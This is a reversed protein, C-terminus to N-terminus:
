AGTVFSPVQRLMGDIADPNKGGAQAMDPRGGGGGGCLQAAKRIVSGCSVGKAVAQKTAMAVLQVRDDKGSALLVLGVELKDRLKEAMDRLGENDLMDFRGTVVRVGDVEAAQDLMAQVSGGAISRKLTELEKLAAKYQTNVAIVKSIVDPASAKLYDAVSILRREEEQYFLRANNGTVAVIRRIGAAVGGEHIIKLIGISATSRVHTGGCFEKSYEGMSVVRVVDGYKEDFLATAGSQKAEDLSMVQTVVPYDEYIAQNVEEEIRDLEERTVAQMHNFDFRLRDSTVYSGSQHIHDGLVKRLAKQLLHTASHNRETALRTGKEVTLTCTEGVELVGSEVIGQHKWCGDATKQTDVIRVAAGVTTLIGVDGVQGGSEAYFPTQDTIIVVSDGDGVQHVFSATTDPSESTRILYLIVAQSQLTEYGLFRTAPCGAPLTLDGGGWSGKRDKIAERAKEKQVAMAKRFAEEDLSLGNESLIEKTLDLPFGYTDHLKFAVEGPLFSSDHKEKKEQILNSLLLLGQGITAAFREEEIRIIKRIYDQKEVLNPYAGGSEEIVIKALDSLFLSKIGLLMGHRAARRLLRRLVYGRAENSPVVGDGIMMVTSRIHDTIVRISVDKQWSEGYRVGAIRCVADLIRRVTDVEFLNDVGQMVCALRELGMGTDINPHELKAYSGDEQKDFQTFVLNWVEIYRDCDCGVGCDPKGCGYEEGRDFHIESCPGCPGTGHEWFNDKKGMRIIRDAPVGVDENWIQFAEDDDQYITIYLREAPIKMVETFFEWAWPIVEKKFYDGFSFNGLMEFFTGHRATKGVNEIDPTRICKQCTTVRKRPPIAAGTFYPKLPAMGSNILLLSPDNQPVLSFSPLRLHGKSEFFALFQERIENLGMKVM